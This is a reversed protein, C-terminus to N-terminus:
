QNCRLDSKSGQQEEPKGLPVVAGDDLTKADSLNPATGGVGKTSCYNSQSQILRANPFFVIDDVMSLQLKLNMSASRSYYFAHDEFEPEKSCGSSSNRENEGERSVRFIQDIDAPYQSRTAAHKNQILVPTSFMELHWWQVENMEEEGGVM